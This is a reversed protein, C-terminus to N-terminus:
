SHKQNGPRNGLECNWTALGKEALIKCCFMKKEATVKMRGLLHLGGKCIPNQHLLAGVEAPVLAEAQLPLVLM